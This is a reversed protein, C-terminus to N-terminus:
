QPIPPTLPAGYSHCHRAIFGRGTPPSSLRKIKAAAEKIVLDNLGCITLFNLCDERVDNLYFPWSKPDPTPTAMNTLELNQSMLNKHDRLKARLWGRASAPTIRDM